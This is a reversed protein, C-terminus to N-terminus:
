RGLQCVLDIRTYQAGRHVRTRRHGSAVKVPGETVMGAGSDQCAVHGPLGEDRFGEVSRAVAGSMLHVRRMQLTEESPGVKEDSQCSRWLIKVMKLWSMRVEERAWFVAGRAWGDEALENEGRGKGLLCGGEGLLHLLLDKTIGTM